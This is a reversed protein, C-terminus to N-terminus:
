MLKSRLGSQWPKENENFALPVALAADGILLFFRLPLVPFSASLSSSSVQRATGLDVISSSLM